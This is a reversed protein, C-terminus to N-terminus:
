HCNQLATDVASATDNENPPLDQTVNGLSKMLHGATRSSPNIDVFWCANIGSDNGWSSMKDNWTNKGDLMLVDTLNIPGPQRLVAVTLELGEGWGQLSSASFLCVAHDGFCPNPNTALAAADPWPGGGDPSASRARQSLRNVAADLDARDAGLVTMSLHGVVVTRALYPPAPAAHAPGAAAAVGVGAVALTVLATVGRRVRAPRIREHPGRMAARIHVVVNRLHHSLHM